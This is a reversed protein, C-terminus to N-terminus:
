ELKWQEASSQIWAEGEETTLVDQPRFKQGKKQYGEEYGEQYLYGIAKQRAPTCDAIDTVYASADAINASIGAYGISQAGYWTFLAADERTIPKNVDLSNIDIGGTILRFAFGMLMAEMNSESAALRPEAAALMGVAFEYYTFIGDEADTEPTQGILQAFRSELESPVGSESIAPLTPTPKPMTTAEASPSPNQLSTMPPEDAPTPNPTATVDSTPKLTPEADPTPEFGETPSPQISPTGQPRDESAKSPEPSLTVSATPTPSPTFSPEPTLKPLDTVSSVYGTSGAAVAEREELEKVLEERSVCFPSQAKDATLLKKLVHESFQFLTFAKQGKSSVGLENLLYTATMGEPISEEKGGALPVAMVRGSWVSLDTHKIGEKDQVTIYFSAGNADIRLGGASLLLEAAQKPATGSLTAGSLFLVSGEKMQIKTGNTEEKIQEIGLEAGAELVAFPIGDMGLIVEQGSVACISDGDKLKMGEYASIKMGSREVLATGNLEVVSIAHRGVDERPWLFYWSIGGALIVFVALLKWLTKRNM